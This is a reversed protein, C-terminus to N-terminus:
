CCRSSSSSWIPWSSKTASSVRRSASRFSPSERNPAPFSPSAWFSRTNGVGEAIINGAYGAVFNSLLGFVAFVLIFTNVTLDALNM